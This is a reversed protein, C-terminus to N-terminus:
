VKPEQRAMVRHYNEMDPAFVYSCILRNADTCPIVARLKYFIKKWQFIEPNWSLCPLPIVETPKPVRIDHDYFHIPLKLASFMMMQEYKAVRQPLFNRVRDLAVVLERFRKQHAYALVFANFSPYDSLARHLFEDGSENFTRLTQMACYISDTPKGVIESLIRARVRPLDVNYQIDPYEVKECRVEDDFTDLLIHDVQKRNIQIQEVLSQVKAELYGNSTIENIKKKEANFSDILKALMRQNERSLM